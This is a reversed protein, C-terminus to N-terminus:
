TNWGRDGTPGSFAFGPVSPAVVHFADKPDGGHARPDTLPGLVDLFDAVTSPWGHTMILPTADPEPSRVHLFHLRQGDVTTTFQPHANLRAEQARWDFGHQWYDVLEALSTQSVGYDWGVGPLEGPWRTNALRHHLEDLDQQPIDLHFPDM